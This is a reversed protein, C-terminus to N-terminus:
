GMIILLYMYEEKVIGRMLTHSHQHVSFARILIHHAPEKESCPKEQQIKERKIASQALNEASSM